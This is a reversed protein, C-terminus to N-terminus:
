TQQTTITAALKASSLTATSIVMCTADTPLTLVSLDPNAFSISPNNIVTFDKKYADIGSISMNNIMVMGARFLSTQTVTSTVQTTVTVTRSRQAQLLALLLYLVAIISRPM